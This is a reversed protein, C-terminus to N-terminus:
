IRGSPPIEDWGLIHRALDALKYSRGRAMAESYGARIAAAYANGSAGYHKIFLRFRKSRKLNEVDNGPSGSSRKV